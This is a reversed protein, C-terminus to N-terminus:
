ALFELQNTNIQLSRNESDVCGCVCAHVCVCAGLSILALTGKFSIKSLRKPSPSLQLREARAAGQNLIVKLPGFTSAAGSQGQM